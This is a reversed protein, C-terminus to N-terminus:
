IFDFDFDFDFDLAFFLNGRTSAKLQRSFDYTWM